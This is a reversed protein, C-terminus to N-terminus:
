LQIGQLIAVKREVFGRCYLIEKDEPDVILLKLQTNLLQSLMSPRRPPSFDSFPRCMFLDPDNLSDRYFEVRLVRSFCVPFHRFTDPQFLNRLFAPVM